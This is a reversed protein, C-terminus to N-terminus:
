LITCIQCKPVLLPIGLSAKLTAVLSAVLAMTGLDPLPPVAPLKLAVLANLDFMALLSLSPLPPVSPIQLSLLPKLMATLQAAAGPLTLDVGLAAKVTALASGLMVINGIAALDLTLSPVKVAAMVSLLAQLKATGAPALLDIGLNIKAMHVVAAISLLPGVSAPLTPMPPPTFKLTVGPALLNIGLGLKATQVLLAMQVVPLLPGVDIKPLAPLHLAASKGLLALQASAAPSALDVGLNLKIAQASGGFALLASLNVPPVAPLAPLPPLPPLGLKLNVLAGLSASL